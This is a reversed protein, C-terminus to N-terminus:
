KIENNRVFLLLESMSVKNYNTIGIMKAVFSVCTVGEGNSPLNLAIAYSYPENLSNEYDCNDKVENKNEVPFNIFTRNDISGDFKNCIVGHKPHTEYMLTDSDIVILIKVHSYGKENLGIFKNEIKVKKAIVHEIFSKGTEFVIIVTDNKVSKSQDDYKINVCSAFLLISFLYLINKM